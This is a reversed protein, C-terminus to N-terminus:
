FARVARVHTNLSFDKYGEDQLGNNFDQYYVRELEYESSSWYDTSSLNGIGKKYLNEYILSLEDKSPLFWDKKEGVYYDSCLKAAYLGNGQALIIKETNSHGTGVKKGIAGTKINKGNYWIM